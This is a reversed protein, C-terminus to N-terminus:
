YHRSQVSRGPVALDPGCYAMMGSRQFGRESSAPDDRGAFRCASSAPRFAKMKRLACLYTMQCEGHSVSQGISERLCPELSFLLWKRLVYHVVRANTDALPHVRGEASRRRRYVAPRDQHGHRAESCQHRKHFGPEPLEGPPFAPLKQLLHLVVIPRGAVQVRAHLEEVPPLLARDVIQMESDAASWDDDTHCCM